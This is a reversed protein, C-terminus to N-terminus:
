GNSRYLIEGVEYDYQDPMPLDRLWVRTAGDFKIPDIVRCQDDVLYLRRSGHKDRKASRLHGPLAQNIVLREVKAIQRHGQLAIGRLRGVM